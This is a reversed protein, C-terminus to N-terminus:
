WHWIWIHNSASHAAAWGKNYASLRYQLSKKPWFILREPILGVFRLWDPGFKTYTSMDFPSLTWIIKPTIPGNQAFHPSPRIRCLRLKKQTTFWVVYRCSWLLRNGGFKTVFRIETDLRPIRFPMNLFKWNLLWKGGFDSISVRDFLWKVWLM